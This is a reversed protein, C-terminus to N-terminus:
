VKPMQRSLSFTGNQCCLMAILIMSRAPDPKGVRIGTMESFSHLKFPLKTQGKDSNSQKQTFYEEEEEEDEEEEKEEEDGCLPQKGVAILSNTRGWLTWVLGPICGAVM